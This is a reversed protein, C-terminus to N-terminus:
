KPKKDEKKRLKKKKECVETYKTHGECNNEISIIRSKSKCDLREKEKGRIINRNEQNIEKDIEIVESTIM